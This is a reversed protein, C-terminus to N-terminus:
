NSSGTSSGSQVAATERVTLVKNLSVVAGSLNVLTDTADSAVDTVRGYVTTAFDMSEGNPATAVVELTYRGDELQEGATNKGDWTAEHRGATTQGSLSRVIAGSADKIVLQCNAAQKPLTYSFSAEGNQLPLQDTDAEVTRGIYSIAMAKANLTNQGILKELNSNANIQQEVNAFQVLQNTFQTSDMPSLPDQHKLQVTLMNLFTDFNESLKSRGIASKSDTSTSSTSQAAAAGTLAATTM